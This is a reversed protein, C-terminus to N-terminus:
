GPLLPRRFYYSGAQDVFVLEWGALGMQAIIQPWLRATGDNYDTATHIHREMGDTKFYTVYVQVPGPPPTSVVCYEWPQHQAQRNIADPTPM